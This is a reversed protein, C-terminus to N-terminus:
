WALTGSRPEEEPNPLYLTKCRECRYIEAEAGFKEKVEDGFFYWRKLHGACIKGKEAKENCARQRLIRRKVKTGDSLVAVVESEPASKGPLPFKATAM